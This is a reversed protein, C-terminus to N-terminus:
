RSVPYVRKLYRIIDCGSKCVSSMSDTIAKQEAGTVANIQYLFRDMDPRLQIALKALLHPEHIYDLVSVAAGSNNVREIKDPLDSIDLKELMSPWDRDISECRMIYDYESLDGLKTVQQNPEGFSGRSGFRIDARLLDPWVGARDIQDKIVSYLAQDRRIFYRHRSVFRDAPNRVIAIKRYEGWKEPYRQKYGAAGIVQEAWILWAGYPAEEQSAVTEAGFAKEISTGCSKEAHVFIVRRRDDIM